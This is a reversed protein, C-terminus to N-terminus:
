NLLYGIFINVVDYGNVTFIYIYINDKEVETM